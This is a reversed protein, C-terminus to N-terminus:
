RIFKLPLVSSDPTDYLVRTERSGPRLPFAGARESGHHRRPTEADLFPFSVMM